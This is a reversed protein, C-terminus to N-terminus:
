EKDGFLERSQRRRQLNARLKASEMKGDHYIGQYRALQQRKSGGSLAFAQMSELVRAYRALAADVAATLAPEQEWSNSEVDFRPGGGGGGGGVGGSGKAGGGAAAAAAAASDVRFCLGRLGELSRKLGAECARAERKIATWRDTAM